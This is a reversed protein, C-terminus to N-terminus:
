VVDEVEVKFRKVVSPDIRYIAAAAIEVAEAYNYSRFYDEAQLLAQHLEPDRSRYRNGYQILQETLIASEVMEDTKEYVLRVKEHADELLQQIAHMELPKVDLKISIENLVEEADDVLTIYSAPIGPLNSKQVKRRAKFLREKLKQLTEKAILEDKRLNTLFEKFEDANDRLREIHHRMDEIKEYIISFAQKNESLVASVEDFEKRLKEFAEDIDQQTRLDGPEIRYSEKVLETERAIEKVKEAVIELDRRVIPVEERLQKRSEVEKELQNYLWELQENLDAIVREVEDFAAKELGDECATLQKRMDKIREDIKLHSLAYGEAAMEAVGNELEDLQKPLRDHIDHYFKPIKGMIDALEDLREKVGGLIERAKLVNGAEREEEFRALDSEINSLEAEVFPATRKYLPRKAILDKKLGHYKEKVTVIDKRNEEESEIVENLDDLMRKLKAEVAELSRQIDIVVEQAKGFRFKDAYDEADFLKEEVAPLDTTVIEDWDRRWSEFKKETEGVMKLEKVKAIQEAIPRNMVDIKWSEYRDIEQYIRRRMVAGYIAVAVVILLIAVIVYVMVSAEGL